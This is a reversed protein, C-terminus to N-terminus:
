KKSRSLYFKGTLCDLADLSVTGPKFYYVVSGNMATGYQFYPLQTYLVSLPCGLHTELSPYFGNAKGEKWVDLNGDMMEIADAVVFKRARMFRCIAFAEEEVSEWCRVMEYYHSEEERRSNIERRFKM